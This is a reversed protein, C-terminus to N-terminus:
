NSSSSEDESPAGKNILVRVTADTALAAAVAVGIYAGSKAAKQADADWYVAEGLSFAVTGKVFDFVGVVALAGLENAKIDLKAVGCLPGIFVVDGASVNAVPTYDISDGKQVSQAKFNAM